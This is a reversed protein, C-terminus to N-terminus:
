WCRSRVTDSSGGPDTVTLEVTHTGGTAFTHPLQVGQGVPVGDVKWAFTSALEDGHDADKSPAASFTAQQGAVPAAPTVTLDAEPATRQYEYAGMDSRAGGAGDGDVTRTLGDKDETLSDTPDAADILASGGKLRFNKVLGGTSVFEPAASSNGTSTNLQGPGGFDTTAGGGWTSFRMTLNAAIMESYRSLATPYGTVISNAVTATATSGASGASVAVGTGTGSGVM